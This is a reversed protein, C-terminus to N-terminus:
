RLRLYFDEILAKEKSNEYESSKVEQTKNIMSKLNGQPVKVDLMKVQATKDDWVFSREKPLKWGRSYSGWKEINMETRKSNRIKRLLFQDQEIWLGPQGSERGTTGAIVYAVVGATRGLRVFPEPIHVFTEKQKQFNTSDQIEAGVIGAGVIYPILKQQSKIFFIPEFFDSASGESNKVLNQPGTKKKGSYQITFQVKDKLSKEGQVLVSMTNENDVYWSEKLTASTGNGNILVEQEYYIPGTINNEVLKDLIMKSSPIYAFLSPTPLTILAMVIFKIM